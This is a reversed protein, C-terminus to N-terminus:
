YRVPQEIANSSQVRPRFPGAEVQEAEITLPFAGDKPASWLHEVKSSILLLIARTESSKACVARM